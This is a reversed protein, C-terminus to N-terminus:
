SSVATCTLVPGILGMAVACFMGFCAFFVMGLQNQREMRAAVSVYGNTRMTLYALMLILFLGLLYLVRLLHNRKRRSAVRLEKEFIPGFPTISTLTFRNTMM